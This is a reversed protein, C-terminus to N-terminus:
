EMGPSKPNKELQTKFQGLLTKPGKVTVAYERNYLFVLLEGEVVNSSDYSTPEWCFAIIKDRDFYYDKIKVLNM